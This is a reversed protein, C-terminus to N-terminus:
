LADRTWVRHRGKYRVCFQSEDSWLVRDWDKESWGQHAICWEIRKQRNAASVYPKRRQLVSRFGLERVRRSLTSTSVNIDARRSIEVLTARRNALIEKKVIRLQRASLKRTSSLEAKRSTRGTENKRKLYKSVTSNSINLRKAIARASMGMESFADIQGKTKESLLKPMGRPKSCHDISELEKCNWRLQCCKRADM